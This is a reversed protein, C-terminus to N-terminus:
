FGARIKLYSILKLWNQLFDVLKAALKSTSNWQKCVASAEILDLDKLYKFVMCLVETLLSM